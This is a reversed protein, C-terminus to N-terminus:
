SSVGCRIRAFAALLQSVGEALAVRECLDYVWGCAVVRKLGIMGMGRVGVSTRCALETRAGSCSRFIWM